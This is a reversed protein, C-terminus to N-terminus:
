LGVTVEEGDVTVEEGDVTVFEFDVPGPESPAAYPTVGLDITIPSGAARITERENEFALGSTTMAWADADVATPGQMRTSMTFTTENVVYAYGVRDIRSQRYQARSFLYDPDHFQEDVFVTLHDGLDYDCPFCEWTAPGVGRSLSTVLLGREREAHEQQGPYDAVIYDRGENVTFPGPNSVGATPTPYTKNVFVDYEDGTEGEDPNTPPPGGPAGPGGGGAWEENRRFVTVDDYYNAFSADFALGDAPYEGPLYHGAGSYVEDTGLEALHGRKITFIGALQDYSLFQMPELITDLAETMSVEYGFSGLKNILETSHDGWFDLREDLAGFRDWLDDVAERLDFGGYNVRGQFYRHGLQTKLAYASAESYLGSRNDVPDMLRGVFYPVIRTGYGMWFRVRAREYGAARLNGIVTFRMSAEGEKSYTVEANVLRRTYDESGIVLRWNPAKSGVKELEQAQSLLAPGDEHEYNIWANEFSGIPM